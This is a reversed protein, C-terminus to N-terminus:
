WDTSEVAERSPGAGRRPKSKGTAAAHHTERQTSGARHPREDLVDQAVKVLWGAPIEEGGSFKPNTRTRDVAERLEDDGIGARVLRILDPNMATVKVGLGKLLVTADIARSMVPDIEYEGACAPPPNDKTNVRIGSGPIGTPKESKITLDGHDAETSAEPRSAAGDMAKRRDPQTDAQTHRTQTPNTDPKKQVSQDTDAKPLFFILRKAEADSRMEVLGARELWGSLRRVKSKHPKGADEVGQHPEVELVAALGQWSIARSEGVLGTRYDMYRRLGRIYLVQAALPLGQLAADEEDNLRIAM